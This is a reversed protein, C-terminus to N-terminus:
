RISKNSIVAKSCHRLQTGNRAYSITASELLDKLSELIRQDDDVVAIILRPADDTVSMGQLMSERLSSNLDGNSLAKRMTGNRQAITDLPFM